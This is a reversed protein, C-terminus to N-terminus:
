SRSIFFDTFEGTATEWTVSVNRVISASPGAHLHQLLEDLQDRPGEALVEVKRDRRNKVWGTLGLRQARQLTFQRFGVGQVMGEVVAHLRDM